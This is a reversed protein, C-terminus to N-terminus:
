VYLMIVMACVMAFLNSVDHIMGAAALAVSMGFFVAAGGLVPVPVRQLKRADPNDVINKLKAIRLVRKFIWWTSLLSVVFLTIYYLILEMPIYKFTHLITM